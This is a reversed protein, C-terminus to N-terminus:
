FESRTRRSSPPPETPSAQQHEGGWPVFWPVLWPAFMGGMAAMPATATPAELQGQQEQVSAHSTEIGGHARRKREGRRRGRMPLASRGKRSRESRRITFSYPSGGGPADTATRFTTTLHDRSGEHVMFGYGRDAYGRLGVYDPDASGADVMAGAGSGFFHIGDREIHQLIHDHGSLYLDAGGSKLVPLLQQQLRPTGGHATSSSFVPFHGIVVKWDADSSVLTRELWSLQEPDGGASAAPTALLQHGTDGGNLLWTDLSVVLLKTGDEAVHTEAFYLSPYHWRGGPSVRSYAIQASVQNSAYYDHNGGCVYWPVQLSPQDFVREFTTQFQPDEVSEVGTDYFNDGLALVFDPHYTAMLPAVKSAGEPQGWDGISLFTFSLSSASAVCLM